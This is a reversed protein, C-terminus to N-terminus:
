VFHTDFHKDTFFIYLEKTDAPHVPSGLMDCYGSQVFGDKQGYQCETNSYCGSNRSGSCILVKGNGVVSKLLPQHADHHCNCVTKLCCTSILLSQRESGWHLLLVLKIFKPSNIKFLLPFYKLTPTKHLLYPSFPQVAFTGHMPLCSTNKKSTHPPSAQQRWLLPWCVHLFREMCPSLNM